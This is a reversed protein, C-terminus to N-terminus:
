QILPGPFGAWKRLRWGKNGTGNLGLSGIRAAGDTVATDMAALDQGVSAAAELLARQMEYHETVPGPAQEGTVMTALAVM